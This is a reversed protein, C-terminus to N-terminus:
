QKVSDHSVVGRGVVLVLGNGIQWLFLVLSFVMRSSAMTQGLQSHSGEPGNGRSPGEAMNVKNQM